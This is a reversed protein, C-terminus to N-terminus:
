YGLFDELPGKPLPVLFWIEFLLFLALPVAISVIVIMSWRFRGSLPVNVYVRLGTSIMCPPPRPPAESCPLDASTSRRQETM